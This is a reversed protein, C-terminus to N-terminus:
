WNCSFHVQQSRKWHLSIYNPRSLNPLKQAVKKIKLLKRLLHENKSCNKNMKACKIVKLGNNLSLAFKNISYFLTLNRLTDTKTWHEHVCHSNLLCQIEFNFIMKGYWWVLYLKSCINQNHNHRALFWCVLFPLCRAISACYINNHM